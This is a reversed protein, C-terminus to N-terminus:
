LSLFPQCEFLVLQSKLQYFYSPYLFEFSGGLVILLCELFLQHVLESIQILHHRLYCCLCIELAFHGSCSFGEAPVVVLQAVDPLLQCFVAIVKSEVDVVGVGIIQTSLDVIHFSQHLFVLARSVLPLLPLYLLLLLVRSLHILKADTHLFKSSFMPFDLAANAFHPLIEELLYLPNIGQFFMVVERRLLHGPNMISQVNLKRGILLFKQILLSPINM